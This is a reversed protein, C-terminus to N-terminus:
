TRKQQQEVIVRQIEAPNAVYCKYQAGSAHVIITSGTVDVSTIQNCALRFGFLRSDGWLFGKGVGKGVIGNAFVQIHTSTISIHYAVGYLLILIPVIIAAGRFMAAMQQAEDLAARNVFMQGRANGVQNDMNHAVLLLAVCCSVASIIAMGWWLALASNKNGNGSVLVKGFQSDVQEENIAPNRWQMRPEASLLASATIPGSDTELQATSPIYKNARLHKIQAKNFPGRRNGEADRYYYNTM